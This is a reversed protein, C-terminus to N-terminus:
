ETEETTTPLQDAPTDWDGVFPVCLVNEDSSGGTQYGANSYLRSWNADEAWFGAPFTVAGPRDHGCLRWTAHDGIEWYRCGAHECEDDRLDWIEHALANGIVAPELAEDPWEIGNIDIM